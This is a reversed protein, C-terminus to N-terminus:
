GNYDNVLETYLKLIDEFYEGEIADDIMTKLTITQVADPTAHYGYCNCNVKGILKSEIISDLELGTILKSVGGIIGHVSVIKYDYSMNVYDQYCDEPKGRSNGPIIEYNFDLNIVISYDDLEMEYDYIIM